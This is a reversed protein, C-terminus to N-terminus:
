ALEPLRLEPVDSLRLGKRDKESLLPKMVPWSIGLAPDDHAITLEHEPHYRETCKYSFMAEDSTVCFGHAFGPPVYLQRRNKDSLTVGIWKGFHPSGRRVDVAVDFVEGVLVQVLKGQANPSQLHLGRLTGRASFSVNDQVFNEEIGAQRYRDSQWCEFFWGRADGYVKPEIIIAGPLATPQVQM